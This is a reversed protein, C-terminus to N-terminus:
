TYKIYCGPKITKISYFLINFKSLESASSVLLDTYLVICDDEFYSYMYQRICVAWVFCLPNCFVWFMQAFFFIFPHCSGTSADLCWEVGIWSPHIRVQVKIQERWEILVIMAFTSSVCFVCIRSPYALKFSFLDHLRIILCLDLNIVCNNSEDWDGCGYCQIVM